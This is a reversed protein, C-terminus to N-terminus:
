GCTSPKQCEIYSIDIVGSHSIGVIELGAERTLSAFQSLSRVQGATTVRQELDRFCMFQTGEDDQHLHDGILGEIIILRADRRMAKAICKLIRVADEDGWDHLVHKILYLDGSAPVSEFMDIGVFRCRESVGMAEINMLAKEANDPQDCVLVVAPFHRALACGLGGIGGAVDILNIAGKIPISKVIENIHAHTTIEHMWDVFLKNNEPFRKLFDWVTKEGAFVADQCGTSLQESMNAWWPQAAGWYLLKTCASSGSHRSFPRGKPAVRYGDLKKEFYNMSTAFNVLSQLLSYNLGLEASVEELPMAKSYLLDFVGVKALAFLTQL